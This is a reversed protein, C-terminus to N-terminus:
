KNIKKTTYDITIEREYKFTEDCETCEIEDRDAEHEWSDTDEYGCYPCIINRTNKHDIM